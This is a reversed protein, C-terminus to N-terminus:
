KKSFRHTKDFLCPRYWSVHNCADSCGHRKLAAWMVACTFLHYRHLVEVLGAVATNVELTAIQMAAAESEASGSGSACKQVNARVNVQRLFDVISRGRCRWPRTCVVARLLLLTERTVQPSLSSTCGSALAAVRSELAQIHQAAAADAIFNVCPCPYLSLDGALSRRAAQKKGRTCAAFADPLTQLKIHAHVLMCREDAKLAGDLIM